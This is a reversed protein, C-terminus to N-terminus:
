EELLLNLLKSNINRTCRPLVNICSRLCEKGTTIYGKHILKGDLNCKDSDPLINNLIKAVIELYEKQFKPLREILSKIIMMKEVKDGNLEIPYIIFDDFNNVVSAMLEFIVDGSAKFTGSLQALKKLIKIKIEESLKNRTKELIMLFDQCDSYKHILSSFEIRDNKSLEKWLEVETGTIQSTINPVEYFIKFIRSKLGYNKLKNALYNQLNVDNLAVEKAAKIIEKGNYNEDISDNIVNIDIVHEFFYEVVKQFLDVSAVENLDKLAGSIESEYKFVAENSLYGPDNIFKDIVKIDLQQLSIVFLLIRIENYKEFEDQLWEVSPLRYKTGDSEIRFLGICSELIVKKLVVNSTNLAKNFSYKLVSRDPLRDYNKENSEHDRRRIMKESNVFYNRPINNVDIELCKRLFLKFGDIVCTDKVDDPLNQFVQEGSLFLPEMDPNDQKGALTELLHEKKFHSLAKFAAGKVLDPTKSSAAIKWLEEVCVQALEFEDEDIISTSLFECYAAFAEDNGQNKVTPEFLKKFMEIEIMQFIFGKIM